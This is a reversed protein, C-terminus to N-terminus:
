GAFVQEARDTTHFSALSTGNSVLPHSVSSQKGVFCALDHRNSIEAAVFGFLFFACVIYSIMTRKLSFHCSNQSFLLNVCVSYTRSFKVNMVM